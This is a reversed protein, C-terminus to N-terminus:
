YKTVKNKPHILVKFGPCDLKLLGDTLTSISDYSLIRNEQQFNSNIWALHITKTEKDLLRVSKFSKRWKNEKISKINERSLTKDKGYRDKLPVINSFMFRTFSESEYSLINGTFINIIANGNAVVVEGNSNLYPKFSEVKNEFVLELFEVGTM